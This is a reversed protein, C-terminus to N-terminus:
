GDGAGLSSAITSDRDRVTMLWQLDRGLQNSRPWGVGSAPAQSPPAQLPGMKWTVMADSRVATETRIKAPSSDIPDSLYASM